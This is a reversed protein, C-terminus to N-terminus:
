GDKSQAWKAKREAVLKDLKEQQDPRLIVRVKAESRAFIEEVQPQMQQRLAKMDQQGDHVIARLQERQTSDLHLKWSLRRVIFNAMMQGGHGHGLQHRIVGVTVLSGALGGLVFVAIAGVVAKWNKM